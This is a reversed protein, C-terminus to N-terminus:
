SSSHVSERAPIPGHQMSDLPQKYSDRGHEAGTIGTPCREQSGRGIVGFRPPTDRLIGPQVSLFFQVGPFASVVSKIM